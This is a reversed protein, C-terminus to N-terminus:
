FIKLNELWTFLHGLPFALILMISFCVTMFCLLSPNFDIVVRYWSYLTWSLTILFIPAIIFLELANM